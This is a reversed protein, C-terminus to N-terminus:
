AFGRTCIRHAEKSLGIVALLFMMWPLYSPLMFTVEDINYFLTLVIIGIYWNIAPTQARGICLMADKGAKVVLVIILGLGVIGNELLM